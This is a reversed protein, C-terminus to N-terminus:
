IAQNNHGFKPDISKILFGPDRFDYGDLL